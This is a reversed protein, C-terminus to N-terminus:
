LDEINIIEKENKFFYRYVHLCHLYMNFDYKFVEETFTLGTKCLKVFICKKITYGNVYALHMYASGQLSWTKGTKISTKFDVLILDDGDYYLADIEGTIMYEDCYFRMPAPSLKKDGVWLKFSDVYGQIDDECFEGLGKIIADICTHVRTGRLAANSLIHEPIKDMGSAFSLCATVRDYGPLINTM